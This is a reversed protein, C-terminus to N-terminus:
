DLVKEAESLLWPELSTIGENLRAGAIIPLWRKYEAIDHQSQEFYRTLYREHCELLLQDFAPDPAENGTIGGLFLISSRAVDAVPNGFSCDIWDVIVDQADGNTTVVINGPHFDGHCVSQGDPMQHLKDILAARVTSSLADADRIKGELKQHQNLISPKADLAHLKLHLDALRTAVASVQQPENRLADLMSIGHIREYTLGNRGQATVVEGVKPIPLDLSQIATTRRLENQIWAPQFWNHYLKVITQENKWTHIDATRGQAILPGLPSNTM